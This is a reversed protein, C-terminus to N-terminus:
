ILVPYPAPGVSVVVPPSSELEVARYPYLYFSALLDSLSLVDNAVFKPDLDDFVLLSRRETRRVSGQYIAFTNGFRHRYKVHSDIPLNDFSLSM